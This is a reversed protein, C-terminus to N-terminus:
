CSTSILLLEQQSTYMYRVVTFEYKHLYATVAVSAYALPVLSRAVLVNEHEYMQM